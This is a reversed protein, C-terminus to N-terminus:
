RGPGGADLSRQAEVRGPSAVMSSSSGAEEFRRDEAAFFRHFLAANALQLISALEFPAALSVEDFMYGALTPALASVGQVPLQSFAAVRAREHAPAATMVFSQRVALGVRQAILRVTYVAGAVAFSPSLALPILLLAQLTRAAVVTRVTGHRSAIPAALQNTAVTILNGAIFLLGIESPGAGFARYLWYSVFPGFLGVAAGNVTNTAVLRAILGRATPSLRKREGAGPDGAAARPPERVGVACLATLASLVAAAIFVPRYTAADVVGHTTAHTLPTAALAAGLLGGLASASAVMGFLRHRQRDQVLGALLAQEAPQYPGVMGAGAGSGRGFSGIAAAALMAMEADTFAFVVGAAASMLPVYILFPRRGIRDAGLGILASMAASALAVVSFFVGVEPGSYGSRALYIAVVVGVLARQASMLVRASLLLGSDRGGPPALRRLAVVASRARAAVTAAAARIM